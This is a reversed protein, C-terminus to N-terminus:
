NGNIEVSGTRTVKAPLETGISPILVQIMDGENGSQKAVGYSDIKVGKGSYVALVKDGAEVLSVPEVNDRQLVSGATLDSLLRLSSLKQETDVLAHRGIVRKEISFCRQDLIAGSTLSCTAVYAPIEVSIPIRLPTRASVIGDVSVKLVGVLLSPSSLRSDLDFEVRTHESETYVREPSQRWHISAQAGFAGVSWSEAEKKTAALVLDADLLWQRRVAARNEGRWQMDFENRVQMRIYRVISDASIEKDSGKWPLAGISRQLHEDRTRITLMDKLTTQESVRLVPERFSM